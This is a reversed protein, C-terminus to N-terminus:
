QLTKAVGAPRYWPLVNIRGEGGAHAVGDGFTNACVFTRSGRSDAAAQEPGAKPVGDGQGDQIM